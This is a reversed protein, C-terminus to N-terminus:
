VGMGRSPQQIRSGDVSPMSAKRPARGMTSGASNLALLKAEDSKIGKKSKRKGQEEQHGHEADAEGDAGAGGNSDGRPRPYDTAEVAPAGHHADEPSSSASSASKSPSKIPASQSMRRGGVRIAIPHGAVQANSPSSM